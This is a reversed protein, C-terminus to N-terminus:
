LRVHQEIPSCYKRNDVKVPLNATSLKQEKKKSDLTLIKKIELHRPTLDRPDNLDRKWGFGKIKLAM